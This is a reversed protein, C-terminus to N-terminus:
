QKIERITLNGNKARTACIGHGFAEAVDDEVLAKLEKSATEFQKAIDKSARWKSAHTAWANSTKMDVRRIATKAGPTVITPLAGPPTDSKVHSWFATENELLTAAYFPDSEILFHEYKLTGLFVSLVARSRGTCLMNHHVQPMYKQAVEDVNSFANVHKAEFVAREADVLGDLTCTLFDFGPAACERGAATVENGSKLRYWRRNLEETAIGMQVPLVESLDPAEARGTKIEWLGLVAQPDGSMIINADSGGISLRRKVIQEPTLGSMTGGRPWRGDEEM